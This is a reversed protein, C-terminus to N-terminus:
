LYVRASLLETSTSGDHLLAAPAKSQKICKVLPVDILGISRFSYIDFVGNVLFCINQIFVITFFISSIIIVIIM